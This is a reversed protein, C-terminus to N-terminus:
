AAGLISKALMMGGGVREESPNQRDGLAAAVSSALTLFSVGSRSSDIRGAIGQPSRTAALDRKRPAALCVSCYWVGGCVAYVLKKKM